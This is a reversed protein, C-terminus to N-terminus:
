RPFQGFNALLVVSACQEPLHGLPSGHAKASTLITEKQRQRRTGLPLAKTGQDRQLWVTNYQVM